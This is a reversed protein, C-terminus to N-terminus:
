CLNSRRDECVLSVLYLVLILVNEKPTHTSAHTKVNFILLCRQGFWVRVWVRVGVGVGALTIGLVRPRLVKPTVTATFWSSIM